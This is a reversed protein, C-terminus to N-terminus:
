ENDAGGAIPTTFQFKHGFRDFVITIETADPDPYMQLYHYTKNPLIDVVRITHLCEFNEDRILDRDAYHDSPPYVNGLDDYATFAGLLYIYRKLPNINTVELLIANALCFSATFLAILSATTSFKLPM